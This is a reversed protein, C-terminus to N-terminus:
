SKKTRSAFSRSVSQSWGNRESFRKKSSLIMSTGMLRSVLVVDDSLSTFYVPSRLEIKMHHLSDAVPEPGATWEFADDGSLCGVWHQENSISYQRGRSDHFGFQAFGHGWLKDQTYNFVREVVWPM